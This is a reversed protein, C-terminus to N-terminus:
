RSPSAAAGPPAPQPPIVVLHLALATLKKEKIGRLELLEEIRLFSGKKSRLDVIAQAMRPGIGPVGVLQERTALNLDLKQSKAAASAASEQVAKREASCVIGPFLLMGSLIVTVVTRM